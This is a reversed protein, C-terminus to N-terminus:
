RGCTVEPRRSPLTLTSSTASSGWKKIGAGNYVCGRSVPGPGLRLRDQLLDPVHLPLVARVLNNVLIFSFLAAPVAPVQPVRPGLIDRAIGNRVFDYVYEASSSSRATPVVKQGRAMWLWFVIV